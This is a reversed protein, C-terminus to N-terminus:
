MGWKCKQQMKRQLGYNNVKHTKYGNKKYGNKEIPKNLMVELPLKYRLMYM